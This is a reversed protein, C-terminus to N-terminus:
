DVVYGLEELRQRTTEDVDSHDAVVAVEDQWERWEQYFTRLSVKQDETLGESAYDHFVEDNDDNVIYQIAGDTVSAAYGDLYQERLSAWSEHIYDFDAGGRETVAFRRTETHLDCGQLGSSDVGLQECITRIIDIHQVTDNYDSEVGRTVLPTHILNPHMSVKHFFSGDEGFMEGHDSTVVIIADEDAMEIVRGAMEDAYSVAAEYARTVIELEQEDVRNPDVFEEEHFRRIVQKAHSGEVGIEQCLESFRSAPPLYPSHPRLYHLYMFTPKKKQLEREAIRNILYAPIHNSKTADLGASHKKLNLLFSTLGRIGVGDLLNRPNLLYYLDDFGRDIGTNASININPSVGVTRYGSEKFREAVTRLESTIKATNSLVGHTSPHVGTLISTTSVRTGLGHSYCNDFSRGDSKEALKQLEPTPNGNNGFSTYDYRLADLTIWIVDRM